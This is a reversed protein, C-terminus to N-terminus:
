ATTAKWLITLDCTAIIFTKTSETARIDIRAGTSQTGDVVKLAAPFADLVARLVRNGVTDTVISVTLTASQADDSNLSTLKVGAALQAGVGM